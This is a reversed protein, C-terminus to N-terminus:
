RIYTPSTSTSHSPRLLPCSPVPTTVHSTIPLPPPKLLQFPIIPYLRILDSTELAPVVSKTMLPNSPPNVKRFSFYAGKSGPKSALITATAHTATHHALRSVSLCPLPHIRRSSRTKREQPTCRVKPALDISFRFCFNPIQERPTARAV